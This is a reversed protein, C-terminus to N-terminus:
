PTPDPRPPTTANPAPKPAVPATRKPPQQAHQAVVRRMAEDLAFLYRHKPPSVFKRLGAHSRVRRVEGYQKRLGDASVQRTHWKKGHEDVFFPIAGTEGAYTWGGAQYIGGHHGQAPDAYSVLLRLGPSSKRLLKVAVSVIRTVPTQHRALAVRTLEAVETDTLGYPQGIQANAGRSFIVVGIFRADEWVGIEVRPPTPVTRSYHWLRCAQRASKADVFGLFLGREPVRPPTSTQPAPRRSSSSSAPAASTTAGSAGRPPRHPDSSSGASLATTPGAGGENEAPSRLADDTSHKRRARM